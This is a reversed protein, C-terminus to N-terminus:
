IARPPRLPPDSQYQSRCLDCEGRHRGVSPAQHERVYLQAAWPPDVLPLTNAPAAPLKNESRCNPGRCPASPLPRPGHDPMPQRASTSGIDERADLYDGCTAHASSAMLLSFGAAVAMSILYRGSCNQRLAKPVASAADGESVQFFTMPDVLGNRDTASDATEGQNM